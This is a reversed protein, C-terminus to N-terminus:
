SYPATQELPCSGIPPHEKIIIKTITNKKTPIKYQKRKKITQNNRKSGQTRQKREKHQEKHGQSYPAKEKL